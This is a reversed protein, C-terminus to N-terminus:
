FSRATSSWRRRRPISSRLTGNPLTTPLNAVPVTGIIGDPAQLGTGTTTGESEPDTVKATDPVEPPAVINDGQAISVSQNGTQGAADVAM